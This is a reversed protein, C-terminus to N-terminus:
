DNFYQSLSNELLQQCLKMSRTADAPNGQMQLISRGFTGNYQVRPSLTYTKRTDDLSTMHFVIAFIRKKLLVLDYANEKVTKVYYNQIKLFNDKALKGRGSILNGGAKSTDVLKRLGTGMRKSIHSICRQSKDKGCAIRVFEM